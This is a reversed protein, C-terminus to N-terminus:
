GTHRDPDSLTGDVNPRSRRRPGAKGAAEVESPVALLPGQIYPSTINATSLLGYMMDVRKSEALIEECTPKLEKYTSRVRGLKIVVLGHRSYLTTGVSNPKMKAM